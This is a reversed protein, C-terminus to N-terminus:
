IYNFSLSAIFNVRVDVLLAQTSKQKIDTKRAEICKSYM